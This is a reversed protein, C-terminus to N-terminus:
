VLISKINNRALKIKNEINIYYNKTISNLTSILVTGLDEQRILKVMNNGESQERYEPFDFAIVPVDFFMAQELVGSHGGPTKYPLLVVDSKIFIYILESEKVYGLYKYIVSSYLKLVEKFKSEYNPFHNNVGGSVLLKFKVGENMLGSLISLALEIDKQPGWNGHLLITPIESKKPELFKCEILNNMYITTIAELYNANLVKVRNKGISNDIRVKYIRLLVYTPVSKFILKEFKGLFYARVRNYISNYGLSKFDNTFISNHYIVRVNHNRLLITLIPPIMLAISNTLSSKGFGTPLMNFIILDYNTWQVRLLRIISAPHDYEYFSIINVKKPIQFEETLKNIKPCYVDILRIEELESLLIVFSTGFPQLSSGHNIFDGVYAIKM